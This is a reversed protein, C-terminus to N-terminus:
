LGISYTKELSSNDRMLLNKDLVFNDEDKRMDKLLSNGRKVYYTKRNEDNREM